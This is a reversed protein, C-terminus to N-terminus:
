RKGAAKLGPMTFTGPPFAPNLELDRYYYSGILVDGRRLETGVQLWRETDIM